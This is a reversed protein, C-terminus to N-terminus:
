AVVFIDARTMALNSSLDAIEVQNFSGGTGDADFFLSGNSRNYIFRDSRDAARTGIHFQASTIAAGARLGGGFGRASVVITDSAPNFDTIIDRRENRSNFVFHDSGRGGTLRDSGAGGVLGDSGNGGVLTDSGAGGRLSDNGGQGLLRDNFKTGTIRDSFRFVFPSFPIISEQERVDPRQGAPFTVSGIRKNDRARTLIIERVLGSTPEPISEGPELGYRFNSGRVIFRVVTPPINPGDLVGAGAFESSTGQSASTPAIEFGGFDSVIGFATGGTVVAM